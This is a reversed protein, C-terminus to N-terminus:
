AVHVLTEAYLDGHENVAKCGYYGTDGKKANKITLVGDKYTAREGLAKANYTWSVKPEPLGTVQCPISVDEGEKVSVQKESKKALKPASVVTLKMTHTQKQGVGNNVVCKYEGEDEPLTERILLRKGSTRNHSTVRDGPKGEKDVGDKFWSTSGLPTGGYICYIMTVDGAKAMMDNSVYQPVLEGNNPNKDQVLAKLFHEALVVEEASAPTQAFCVYKFSPSVDSETVNSFWLTGDPSLTIRRSLFTEVITPDSRLQTKWVITPKPYSEPIPCDLKFPKGEVPTHEQTKVQPANIFARKLSIERTSATGAPTEVFCQYTGEDQPQPNFFMISGEGPRQAIHGAKEWDFPQGNKHWTYKVDQERGEIACELLVTSYNDAKFLVEAPQDKLVPLKPAAGDQHVPHSVCFTFCVAVVLFSIKLVRAM